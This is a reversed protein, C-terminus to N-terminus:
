GHQTGESHGNLVPIRSAMRAKARAALDDSERKRKAWAAEEDRSMLGLRRLCDTELEQYAPWFDTHLFGFKEGNCGWRAREEAEASITQGPLVPREEGRDVLWFAFPRQGPHAEVFAPLLRDRHLEWATSFTDRDGIFGHGFAWGYLLHSEQTPDLTELDPRRRRVPIRRRPM